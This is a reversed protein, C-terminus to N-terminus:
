KDAAVNPASQTAFRYLTALYRSLHGPCAPGHRLRVSRTSKRDDGHRRLRSSLETTFRLSGGCSPQRWDARAAPGAATSVAVGTPPNTRMGEPMNSQMGEPM